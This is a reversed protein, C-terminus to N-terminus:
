ARVMVKFGQKAVRAALLAISGALVALGAFIQAGLYSGNLRQVLLGAIPPGTLCAFSMVSFVMGMRTGMKRPDETLTSLTAPFIGLFGASTVGYIVAWAELEQLTSVKAWTCLVIGGLFSFFVLMNLPGTYRDALFAPIIRGPVGVGSM